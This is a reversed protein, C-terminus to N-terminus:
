VRLVVPTTTPPVAGPPAPCAITSDAKALTVLTTHVTGAVFPASKAITDARKAVITTLQQIDAGHQSCDHASADGIQPGPSPNSSNECPQGNGHHSAVANSVSDCAMACVTGTVPLGAVATLVAIAIGHRWSV